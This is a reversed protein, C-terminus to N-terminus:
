VICFYITLIKPTKKVCKRVGQSILKTKIRKEERKDSISKKKDRKLSFAVGAKGTSIYNWRCKIIIKKNFHVTIVTVDLVGLNKGREEIAARKVTEERERNVMVGILQSSYLTFPRYHHM